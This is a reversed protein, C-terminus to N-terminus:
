NKVILKLKPKAQQVEIDDYEVEEEPTQAYTTYITFFLFLSCLCTKMLDM